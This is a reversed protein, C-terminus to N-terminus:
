AELFRKEIEDLDDEVKQLSTYEGVMRQYEGYDKAMGNVLFQEISSKRERARIRLAEFIDSEM